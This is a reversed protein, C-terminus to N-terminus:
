AAVAAAILAVLALFGTRRRRLQKRRGPSPARRPAAGTAPRSRTSATRTSM